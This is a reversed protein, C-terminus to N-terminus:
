DTAAVVRRRVRADRAPISQSREGHGPEGYVEADSGIWSRLLVGDPDHTGSFTDKHGVGIGGRGPLGKIGVVRHGAFLKRSQMRSWLALDIFKHQTRCAAELVRYGRGRLATSCLSAHNMNDLERGQRTRVNYYRARTEGIIEARRLNAACFELWDTAYWDDDEIFVCGYRQDLCALGALLNRAQTNDGPTWLPQPRVIVLDWGTRAFAIPQMVEGDDVIVWRVPGAYTQRAMWRECLAWADPRCGTATLLQLM